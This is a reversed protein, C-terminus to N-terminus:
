VGAGEPWAKDEDSQTRCIQIVEGIPRELWVKAESAQEHTFEKSMCGRYFVVGSSYYQVRLGDKAVRMLRQFYSLKRFLPWADSWTENTGLLTHLKDMLKDKKGPCSRMTGAYGTHPEPNEKFYYTYRKEEWQWCADIIIAIEHTTIELSEPKVGVSTMFKAEWPTVTATLNTDLHLLIM